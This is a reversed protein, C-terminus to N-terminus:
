GHFWRAIYTAADMFPGALVCAILTGTFGSAPSFMPWDRASLTITYTERPADAQEIIRALRLATAAKVEFTVIGGICAANRLHRPMDKIGDLDGAYIEIKAM